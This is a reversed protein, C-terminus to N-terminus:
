EGADVPWWPADALHESMGKETIYFFTTFNDEPIDLSPTHELRIAFPGKSSMLYANALKDAILGYLAEVYDDCIQNLVLRRLIENRDMFDM